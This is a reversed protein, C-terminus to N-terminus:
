GCAVSPRGCMQRVKEEFTDESLRKRESDVAKMRQRGRKENCQYGQQTKERTAGFCHVLVSNRQPFPWHTDEEKTHSSSASQSSALSSAEQGGAVQLAVDKWHLLVTQMGRRHAQSPSASQASPESSHGLFQPVCLGPAAAM